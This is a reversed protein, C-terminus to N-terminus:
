SKIRKKIFGLLLIIGACILITIGTAASLLQAPIRRLQMYFPLSKLFAYFGVGMGALVCEIAKFIIM